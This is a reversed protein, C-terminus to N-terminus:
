QYTDIRAGARASASREQADHSDASDRGTPYSGAHITASVMCSCRIDVRAQVDAGQVDCSIARIADQVRTDTQLPPLRFRYAWQVWRLYDAGRWETRDVYAILAYVM